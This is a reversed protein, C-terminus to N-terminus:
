RAHIHDSSVQDKDLHNKIEDKKNKKVVIYISYDSNLWNLVIKLSNETITNTTTYIQNHPPQTYPPPTQYNHCYTHYIHPHKTTTTITPSTPSNSITIDIICLTQMFVSLHLLVKM